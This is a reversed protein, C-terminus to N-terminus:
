HRLPSSTVSIFNLKQFAIKL